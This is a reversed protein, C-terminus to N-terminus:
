AQMSPAIEDDEFSKTFSNSGQLYIFQADRLHIFSYIISFVGCYRVIQWLSRLKIARDCMECGEDLGLGNSM